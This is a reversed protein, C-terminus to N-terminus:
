DSRTHEHEQIHIIFLILANLIMIIMHINYVINIHINILPINMSKITYSYYIIILLYYYYLRM